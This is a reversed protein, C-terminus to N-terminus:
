ARGAHVSPFNSPEHAAQSVVASLLEYVYLLLVCAIEAM